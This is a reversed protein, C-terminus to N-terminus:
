LSKQAADDLADLDPSVDPVAFYGILRRARDPAPKWREPSRMLEMMYQRLNAQEEATLYVSKVLFSVEAPQPPMPAKQVYRGFGERVAGTLADVLGVVEEATLKDREADLYTAAEVLKFEREVTGHIRTEKAICIMGADLLLNIHRYLTTLPVDGLIRAIQAANLQRDQLAIVIRTRIPHLLSKARSLAKKM